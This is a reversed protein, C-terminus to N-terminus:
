MGLAALVEPYDACIERAAAEVQARTVNRSGLPIAQRWANTFVQHEERTVVVPLMEAADQGM